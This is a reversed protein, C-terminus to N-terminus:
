SRAPRHQACAAALEWIKRNCEETTLAAAAARAREGVARRLGPDEWLRIIVARLAAPDPYPVLFGTRASEEEVIYDRGGEPDTLVVPKAMVMANLISQQAGAHLLTARMPMVVLRAGAMCNRFEAPTLSLREVMAPIALGHLLGPRNTALKCPYPLGRLAEFLLGFDRDANGGCFIYGGDGVEFQYRGLTHHHPVFVFKAPDVGYARAYRTCEVSAWVVCAAVHRLCFRMWARRLPGGGYWLCDQMVQTVRDRRLRLLCALA